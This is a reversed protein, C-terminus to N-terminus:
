FALLYFIIPSTLYSTFSSKWKGVINTIEVDENDKSCSSFMVMGAVLIAVYLVSQVVVKFYVKRM